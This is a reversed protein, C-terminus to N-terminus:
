ENLFIYSLLEYIYCECSCGGSETTVVKERIFIYLKQQLWCQIEPSIARPRFHMVVFDLRMVPSHTPPLGM